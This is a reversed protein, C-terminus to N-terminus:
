GEAILPRLQMCVTTGVLVLHLHIEMQRDARYHCQDGADQDKHHRSQQVIDDRNVQDNGTEQSQEAATAKMQLLGLRVLLGGVPADFARDVQDRQRRTAPGHSRPKRAM